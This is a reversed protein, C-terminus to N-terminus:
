SVPTHQLFRHLTRSLHHTHPSGIHQPANSRALQSRKWTSEEQNSAHDHKKISSHKDGGGRELECNVDLDEPKCHAIYTRMDRGEVLVVLM